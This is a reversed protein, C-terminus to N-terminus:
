KEVRAVGFFGLKQVQQLFCLTVQRCLVLGVSEVNSDVIALRGPLRHHVEMYM